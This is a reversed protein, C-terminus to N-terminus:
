GHNDGTGNEQWTIVIRENAASILAEDPVSFASCIIQIERESPLTNDRWLSLTWEDLEIVLELHLGRSLCTEAKGKEMTQAVLREAIETLNM